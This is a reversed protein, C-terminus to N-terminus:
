SRKLLEKCRALEVALEEASKAPQQNASLIEFGLEECQAADVEIANIPTNYDDGTLTGRQMASHQFTNKLKIKM